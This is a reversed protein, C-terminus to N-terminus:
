FRLISVCRQIPIWSFSVRSKWIRKCATTSLRPNMSRLYVLWFSKNRKLFGWNILPKRLKQLFRKGRKGQKESPRVYYQIDDFDLEDMDGGWKPMPMKEFQKLAKLRFELMWDPEGKIKSIEKVIEPTLGKGTQFISKHEDRFGYKYEEMEPAKKAM